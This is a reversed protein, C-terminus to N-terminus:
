NRKSLWKYITTKPISYRQVVEAITMQKQDIKELIFDKVEQTYINKRFNFDTKKTNEKIASASSAPAYLILHGTYIRFFDYRLLKSWRLLLHTDLSEKKYMELLDKESCNLFNCIRDVAMGTENVKYKIYSGIHVKKLNMKNPNM